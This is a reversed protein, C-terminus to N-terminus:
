FPLDNKASQNQNTNNVCRNVYISQYGKKTKAVVDLIKASLENLRDPLDSLKELMLGLKKLDRKLFRLNDDTVFGYFWTVEEGEFDAPSLVEAKMRLVLNGSSSRILEPILTRVQYPGDPVQAAWDGAEETAEFVSNLNELEKRFDNNAM